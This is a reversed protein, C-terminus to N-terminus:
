GRVAIVRFDEGLLDEFPGRTRLSASGVDRLELAFRAIAAVPLTRAQNPGLARGCHPCSLAWEGQAKLDQVAKGWPGAIPQECSPCDVHFGGVRNGYVGVGPPRDVRLLVFGDAVWQEGEPGKRGRATILGQAQWQAWHIKLMAEDLTRDLDKPVLVLNLRRSAHPPM